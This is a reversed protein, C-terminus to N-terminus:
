PTKPEAEVRAPEGPGILWTGRNAPQLRAGSPVDSRISTDLNNWYLRQTTM